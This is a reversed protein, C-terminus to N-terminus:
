PTFKHLVGIGLGAGRTNGLTTQTPNDGILGHIDPPTIHPPIHDNPDIFITEINYGLEFVGRDRITPNIPSQHQAYALIFTSCSTILAVVLGIAFVVSTQKHNLMSM